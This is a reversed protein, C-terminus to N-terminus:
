QTATTSVKMLSLMTLSSACMQLTIQLESSPPIQLDFWRTTRSPGTGLMPYNGFNSIQNSILYCLMRQKSRFTFLLLVQTTGILFFSPVVFVWDRSLISFNVAQGPRSDLRRWWTLMSSSSSSSTVVISLTDIPIWAVRSSTMECPFALPVNPTIANM